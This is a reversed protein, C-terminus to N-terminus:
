KQPKWEIVEKEAREANTKTITALLNNNWGPLVLVGDSIRVLELLIVAFDSNTMEIPLAQLVKVPNIPVDGHDRIWKESQLFLDVEELAGIILVKM